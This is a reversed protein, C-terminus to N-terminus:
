FRKLGLVQLTKFFRTIRLLIHDNKFDLSKEIYIAIDHYKILHYDDKNSPVSWTTRVEDTPVCCGNLVLRSITLVNGKATIRDKVNKGMSVQIVM